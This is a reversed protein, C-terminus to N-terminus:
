GAVQPFDRPGVATYLSGFLLRWREGFQPPPGDYGNRLLVTHVELVVRRPQDLREKTVQVYSVQHARFLAYRGIDISYQARDEQHHDGEYEVVTKWRRYVLDGYVKINEELGLEANSEPRPLGAFELVSRTESEKMSRSRPELYPPVWLAEQAGARWPEAVGLAELRRLDMHGHHLLWDGVKIADIVRCLSCYSLYAAEISVGVDDLPPMKKTRHLFVDEVCRHVDRDIVFRFPRRPGYDLGLLQLRTIGTVQVGDPLALKAALLWDDDTMEHEAPKWVSPHVREFRPGQLMRSTVGQKRGQARTFPGPNWEESMRNM